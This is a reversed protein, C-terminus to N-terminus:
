CDEMYIRLDAMQMQDLYLSVMDDGIRLIAGKECYSFEKCSFHFCNSEVVISWNPACPAVRCEYYDGCDAISMYEGDTNCKWYSEFM